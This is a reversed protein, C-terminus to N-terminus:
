YANDFIRSDIKKFIKKYLDNIKWSKEFFQCLSQCFITSLFSQFM